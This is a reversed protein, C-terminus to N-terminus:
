PRSHKRMWQQGWQVAATARSNPHGIKRLPTSHPGRDSQRCEQTGQFVAVLHTQAVAHGQEAAKRYWRSAEVFDKPVGKGKDYMRGLLLQADADGQEVLPMLQKLARAYDGEDYAPNAAEFDAM